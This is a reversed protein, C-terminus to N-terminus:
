SRAERVSVITEHYGMAFPRLSRQDITLVVGHLAAKEVLAIASLRIHEMWAAHTKAADAADPEPPELQPM